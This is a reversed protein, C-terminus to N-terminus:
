PMQHFIPTLVALSTDSTGGLDYKRGTNPLNQFPSSTQLNRRALLLSSSRLSYHWRTFVAHLDERCCWSLCEEAVFLYIPRGQAFYFEINKCLEIPMVQTSPYM